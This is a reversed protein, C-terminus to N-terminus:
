GAKQGGQQQSQRRCEMAELFAKRAFPSMNCLVSNLFGSGIEFVADFLVDRAVEGLDVQAYAMPYAADANNVHFRPDFDPRFGRPYQPRNSHRRQNQLEAEFALKLKPDRLVNYAQTIQKAKETNGTEQNDPHYRRILLLYAAKIMEPSASESVELTNYWNTM